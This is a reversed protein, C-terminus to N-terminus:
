SPADSDKEDEDDDRESFSFSLCAPFIFALLPSATETISVVWCIAVATSIWASAVALMAFVPAIKSM